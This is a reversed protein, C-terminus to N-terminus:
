NCAGWKGVGTSRASAEAARLEEAWMTDPPQSQAEAYGESVLLLGLLIEREAASDWIWVHRLLRGSADMDSVDQELRVMHGAVRDALFAAAEPGFCEDGIGPADIRPANVGLMRVRYTAGDAMEVDITNGSQIYVVLAEGAIGREQATAVAASLMLMLISASVLLARAVAARWTVSAPRM